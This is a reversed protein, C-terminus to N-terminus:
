TLAKAFTEKNYSTIIYSKMEVGNRINLHGTVLDRSTQTPFATADVLQLKQLTLTAVNKHM